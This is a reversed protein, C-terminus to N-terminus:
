RIKFLARMITMNSTQSGTGNATAVNIVLTMPDRDEPSAVSQPTAELVSM